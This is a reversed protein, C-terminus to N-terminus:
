SDNSALVAQPNSPDIHKGPPPPRGSILISREYHVNGGWSSTRTITTVATIDQDKRITRKADTEHRRDWHAKVVLSLTPVNPLTWVDFSSSPQQSVAGTAMRRETFVTNDAFRTTTPM